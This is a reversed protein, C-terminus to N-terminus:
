GGVATLKRLVDFAESLLHVFTTQMSPLGALMILLGFVLSIPFGVAFLNL